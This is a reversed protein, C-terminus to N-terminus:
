LCNEKKQDKEHDLYYQFVFGPMDQSSRLILTLMENLKEQKEDM